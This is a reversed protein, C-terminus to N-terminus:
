AGLRGALAMVRQRLAALDEPPVADIGTRSLQLLV